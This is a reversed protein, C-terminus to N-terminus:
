KNRRGAKYDRLQKQTIIPTSKNIRQRFDSIDEHSISRYDAKSMDYHRKAVEAAVPIVSLWRDDCNLQIKLFELHELEKYPFKGRLALILGAVYLKLKLM